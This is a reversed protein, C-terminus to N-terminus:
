GALRRVENIADAHNTVHITQFGLKSATITAIERDDLFVVENPEVGGLKELAIGYIQESPKRAGVECSLIVPDFEDYGGNERIIKATISSVNSLIAVTYGKARVDRVLDIMEPLPTLESWTYWIDRDKVDILKGYNKEILAWVEDETIQNASFPKWIDVIWKIAMEVPVGLNRALRTAPVGDQVGATVVGDYDFLFVKTM